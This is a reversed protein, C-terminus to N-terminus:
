KLIPKSYLSRIAYYFYRTMINSDILLALLISKNQLPKYPNKANLTIAFSSFKQILSKVSLDSTRDKIPTKILKHCMSQCNVDLYTKSHIKIINDLVKDKEKIEHLFNVFTNFANLKSQLSSTTTTSQHLRFSFCNKPSIVEYGLSTFAYWLEFDAYLLNSYKTPIGGLKDYLNSKFVYGTGMSDIKNELFLELFSTKTIKSPMTKCATIISTNKDIFNFHTHFLTATPHEKILNNIEELFNPALVDDHGILTSYELKEIEIARAWNETISLDIPSTFIKIRKDNLSELYELTGDTSNNNLVILNFSTYSQHLISEVCEKIYNGGNRVPLIISFKTEM